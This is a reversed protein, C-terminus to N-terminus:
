LKSAAARLAHAFLDADDLPNTSRPPPVSAEGREVRAVAVTFIVWVESLYKTIVTSQANTSSGNNRFSTLAGYM